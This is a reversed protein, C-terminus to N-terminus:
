LYDIFVDKIKQFFSVITHMGFRPQSRKDLVPFM